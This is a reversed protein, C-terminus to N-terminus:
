NKRICTSDNIIFSYCRVSKINIIKHIDTNTPIYKVILSDKQNLTVITQSHLKSYKRVDGNWSYASDFPAEEFEIFVPTLYAEFSINFKVVTSNAAIKKLLSDGGYCKFSLGLQQNINKFNLLENLRCSVPIFYLDTNGDLFNNKFFFFGFGKYSNDEIVVKENKCSLTFIFVILAIIFPKLRNTKIHIHYMTVM